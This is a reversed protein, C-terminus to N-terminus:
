HLTRGPPRFSEAQVSRITRADAGPKYGEVTKLLVAQMQAVDRAAIAARLVGLEKLLDDAPIGPEDSRLIRPHETGSTNAGLLLEEYLKEGPRLGTYVIDIDGQPNVDDRVELGSLRIMLRALEDIRVPEGMDLVFVDGGRAMASAQIVLAAAEPISMFYRVIDPHTVTVPGGAKIQRGFRGVVSGSSDLVNGFRVMTFVTQPRELAKAQLVLEALRKSAGMVSTPRVAKDTSILVMKEVGNAVAAEAVVDTGFVNNSIGAAPNEEVIPVHKYAAAHYITQVGYRRVVDNILSVDLVSGLVTAIKPQYTGPLASAFADSLEIDIQYLAPESVDLLVIQSPGLRAAQRVLESGISGGAGTVLVSKGLISRALLDGMPTVSDRGLLDAVDLARLDMVNVKGTAIDEVSPMVKVAVQLGELEKLIRRRQHRESSPVAILVEKVGESEVVRALRDPRYVRIGAVYQGWLSPTVDFFGVIHRTRLRILSRALEVGHQGAGYIIVPNADASARALPLIIGSSRLFWGILMRSFIILATATLGYVIVISRPIGTQGSMFLLLSWILISLVVAGAIRSHGRSDLYRTVLKYLKAYAFVVITIVPGAALLLFSVLGPPLYLHGYRVSLIAELGATLLALDLIILLARKQHRPLDLLRSRLTATGSAVQGIM